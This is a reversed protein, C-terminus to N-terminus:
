KRAKRRRLVRGNLRALRGGQRFLGGKAFPEFMDDSREPDLLESEALVREAESLDPPTYRRLHRGGASGENEILARMSGHRDLL